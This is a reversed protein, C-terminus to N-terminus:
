GRPIDMRPLEEDDVQAWWDADYIAWPTGSPGIIWIERRLKFAKRIFDQTGRSVGDWFVLCSDAHKAILTNRAKGAGKGLKDWEAPYVVVELGREQAAIEAWKDPGKAGGSVVGWDKPFQDLNLDILAKGKAIIDLRDDADLLDWQERTVPYTRSGTVSVWRSPM